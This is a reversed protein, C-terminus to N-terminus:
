RRALRHTDPRHRAGLSPHCGQRHSLAATSEQAAAVLGRTALTRASRARCGRFGRALRSRYRHVQRAPSCPAAMGGGCTQSRDQLTTEWRKELEATVLRNHPDSKQYQREALRAQYRLRELQQQHARRVQEQERDSAALAQTYM